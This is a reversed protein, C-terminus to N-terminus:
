NKLRSRLTAAFCLMGLGLLSLSAPEPVAGLSNVTPTAVQGSFDIGEAYGYMQDVDFELTNLGNVFGTLTYTTPTTCNPPGSTCTGATSPGAAATILTGNLYVAATDDAMITIMGTSAISASFTSFYSYTGNPLVASGGPSSQPNQSVWSSNGVATAWVGNSSLDYTAGSAGLTLATNIADVPMVATTGYSEITSAASSSVCAAFLSLAAFASIRTFLGM